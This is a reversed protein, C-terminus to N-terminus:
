HPRVGRIVVLDEEREGPAVLGQEELWTARGSMVPGFPIRRRAIM